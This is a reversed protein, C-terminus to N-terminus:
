QKGLPKGFVVKINELELAVVYAMVAYRELSEELFLILAQRFIDIFDPVKCNIRSMFTQSIPQGEFPEDKAIQIELIMFAQAYFVSYWRKHKKWYKEVQSTVKDIIPKFDIEAWIDQAVNIYYEHQNYGARQRKELQHKTPYPARAKAAVKLKKIWTRRKAAYSPKTRLLKHYRKLSKSIRQRHLKTLHKKRLKGKSKKM